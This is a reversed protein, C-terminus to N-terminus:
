RPVSVLSGLYFRYFMDTYADAFEASILNGLRLTATVVCRPVASSRNLRNAHITEEDMLNWFVTIVSKVNIGANRRSEM